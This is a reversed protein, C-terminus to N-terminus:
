AEAEASYKALETPIKPCPPSPPLQVATSLSSPSSESCTGTNTDTGHTRLGFFAARTRANERRSDTKAKLIYM